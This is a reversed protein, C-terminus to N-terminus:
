SGLVLVSTYKQDMYIDRSIGPEEAAQILRYILYSDGEYEVEVQNGAADTMVVTSPTFNVMDLDNIHFDRDRGLFIVKM